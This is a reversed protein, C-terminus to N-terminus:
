IRYRPSTFCGTNYFLFYLGSDPLFVLAPAEINPGDAPINHLLEVPDGILTYGDSSSVRQLMIVTPVIPQKTNKCAGGHGISNGDIKYVVYHAPDNSNIDIFGDADIAGGKSHDCSCHCTGGDAHHKKFHDNAERDCDPDSKGQKKLGQKYQDRDCGCSANGGGRGPPGGGQRGPPGGAGCRGKGRQHALMAMEHGHQSAAIATQLGHRAAAPANALVRELVALHKGTAQAYRGCAATMDKGKAAGNEIAGAAGKSVHKDYSKGLADQHTDKGKAQMKELEKTREEGLKLFLDVKADADKTKALKILEETMKRLHDRDDPTTTVSISQAWTAAPFGLVIALSLMTKMPM